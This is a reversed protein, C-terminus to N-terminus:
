RKYKRMTHIPTYLDASGGLNSAFDSSGVSISKDLNPDALLEVTFDCELIRVLNCVTIATFKKSFHKKGAHLYEHIIIIIIIALL